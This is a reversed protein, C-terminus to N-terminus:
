KRMLKGTFKWDSLITSCIDSDIHNKLWLLALPRSLHIELLCAMFGKNVMRRVQLNHAELGDMNLM